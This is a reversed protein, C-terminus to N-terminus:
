KQVNTKGMEKGIREYIDNMSFPRNETKMFEYITDKSTGSTSAGSNRSKTPSPPMRFINFLFSEDIKLKKYVSHICIEVTM